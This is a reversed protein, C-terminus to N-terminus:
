KWIRTTKIYWNEIQSFRYSPQALKEISIGKVKKNVPYLYTSSYLFIAPLDDNLIKQFEIYKQIREEQNLTQRADQLLKDVDSNKYLALNLGPDNSQSSHWFAFPDPDASLVEGFLLAQYQRPRIYEQQITIADIIELNVLM